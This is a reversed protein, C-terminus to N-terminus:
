KAWKVKRTAIRVGEFEASLAELVDRALREPEVGLDTLSVTRVPTGENTVNAAFHILSSVPTQTAISISLKADGCYLDDGSRTLTAALDGERAVDQIRDKVIAAMLRQLAVAAILSTDFTEVVFHVMQGGCIRSGAVLDEGDIMAEPSIDCPGIWAIASDGLLGHRLYNRLSCMQSGDYIEPKELFLVKM